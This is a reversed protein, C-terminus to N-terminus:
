AALLHSVTHRRTTGDPRIIWVGDQIGNQGGSSSSPQSEELEALRKEAYRLAARESHYVGSLPYWHGDFTDYGKLCWRPKQTSPQGRGTIRKLAARANWEIRDPKPDIVRRFIKLPAAAQRGRSAQYKAHALVYSPSGFRHKRVDRRKM